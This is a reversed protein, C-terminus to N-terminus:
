VRFLSATCVARLISFVDPDILFQQSFQVPFGGTHRILHRFHDVPDRHHHLLIFFNHFPKLIANEM